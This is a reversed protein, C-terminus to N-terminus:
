KRLNPFQRDVKDWKESEKEKEPQIKDEGETQGDETQGNRVKEEMGSQDDPQENSQGDIEEQKRPQNDDKRETADAVGALPKNQEEM